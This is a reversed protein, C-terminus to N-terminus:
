AALQLLTTSLDKGNKFCTEGQTVIWNYQGNAVGWRLYREFAVWHSLLDVIYEM